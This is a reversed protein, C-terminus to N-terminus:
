ALLEDLIDANVRAKRARHLYKDISAKIIKEKKNLEKDLLEVYKSVTTMQYNKM